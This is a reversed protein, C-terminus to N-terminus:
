SFSEATSGIAFAFLSQAIMVEDHLNFILQYVDIPTNLSPSTDPSDIHFTNICNKDQKLQQCSKELAVLILNGIQPIEPRAAKPAASCRSAADGTDARDHHGSLCFRIVDIM